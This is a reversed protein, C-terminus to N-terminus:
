TGAAARKPKVHRGGARWRRGSRGGVLQAGEMRGAMEAATRKPAAVEVNRGDQMGGMRRAQRANGLRLRGAGALVLAPVSQAYEAAPELVHTKGPCHRDPTALGAHWTVYGKTLPPPPPDRPLPERYAMNWFRRFGNVAPADHPRRGKYERGRSCAAVAIGAMDERVARTACPTVISAALVAPPGIVQM